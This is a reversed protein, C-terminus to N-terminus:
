KWNNASSSKQAATRVVHKLQCFPAHSALAGQNAFMRQCSWCQITKPNSLIIPVGEPFPPLVQHTKRDVRQFGFKTLPDVTGSLILKSQIPLVKTATSVDETRTAKIKKSSSSPEELPLRRLAGQIETRQRLLSCVQQELMGYFTTNSEAKLEDRLASLKAEIEELQQRLETGSAAAAM